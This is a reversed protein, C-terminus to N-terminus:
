IKADKLRRKLETTSIEETYPVYVLMWDLFVKSVGYQKYIDKKVWDSGVVVIGIDNNCIEDLTKENDGKIIEDVYRCSELVSRRESWNMIPPHGKYKTIAEDSLLSVVVEDDGALRRCKGLLRVHGFHFLDFTGQTYVRM